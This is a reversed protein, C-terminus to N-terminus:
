TRYIFVIWVSQGPVGVVKRIAWEEGNARVVMDTDPEPEQPLFPGPIILKADSFIVNSNKTDDFGPKAVVALVDPVTNYAATTTDDEVNFVGASTLFKFQVTETLGGPALTKVFANVVQQKIIDNLAM